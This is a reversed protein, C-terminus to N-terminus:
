TVAVGVKSPGIPPYVVTPTGAAVLSGAVEDAAAGTAGDEVGGAGTTTGVVESVGAMLGEESVGAMLGEEVAGARSTSEFDNLLVATACAEDVSGVSIIAGLVVRVVEAGRRAAVLERVKEGEDADFVADAALEVEVLLADEPPPILPPANAPTPIPANSRTPAIREMRRYQKL